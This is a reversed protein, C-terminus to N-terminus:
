GSAAVEECLQAAREPGGAARFGYAVDRARASLDSDELMGIAVERLSQPELRRPSLRRAAGSAAVNGAGVWKEISAPVALVPAGHSLAAVLGGYGGNSIFLATRPFLLDHPIWPATLVGEPLPGAHHQGSVVLQHGSDILADVALRVLSVRNRGLTGESVHIVSREPDLGEWWEPLSSTDRAGQALDGVFHIHAPLDPRDPEIDETGQAIVLRQSWAGHLGPRATPPLGAKARADNHMRRFSRDVTASLAGRLAADRLKGARTRGPQLPLGPPPLHRSPWGLTSLSATVFPVGTRESFIEAGFFTGEAIVADAATEEHASRLDESQGPASGFFLEKFSSSVAAPSEGSKMAPFSARPDTDDFDQAHVLPLWEAGTSRAVDSYKRGTCFRVRHGRAVLARALGAMPYVHGAFPTSAVIFEAM